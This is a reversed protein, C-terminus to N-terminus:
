GVAKKCRQRRLLGLYFRNGQKLEGADIELYQGTSSGVPPQRQFLGSVIAPQWSAGFPVKSSAILM